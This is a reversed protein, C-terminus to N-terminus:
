AKLYSTVACNQVNEVICMCKLRLVRGFKAARVTYIKYLNILVIASLFSYVLATNNLVRLMDMKADMEPLIARM